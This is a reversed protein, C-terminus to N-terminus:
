ITPEKAPVIKKAENVLDTQIQKWDKALYDPNQKIQQDILTDFSTHLVIEWLQIAGISKQEIIESNSMLYLRDILQKLELIQALKEDSGFRLKQYQNLMSSKISDPLNNETAKAYEETIDTETRIAFNVPKKINPMIFADIGYRVKGCFDICFELLDWIENSFDLLASFLDERDIIKGLATDSGKANTMSIDVGLFSFSKSVNMNIEDRLFQLINTDMQVFGLPPVPTEGGEEIGTLRKIKHVGLTKKRLSGSGGCDPCIVRRAKDDDGYETVYGDNCSSNTCEDDFEWRIPYAHAIKAAQLTSNDFVIDNLPPVADSVHSQMLNDYIQVGGLYAAPIYNLDHTYYESFEFSYDVFKGKQEIKWITTKDYLYFVFGIKKRNNYYDVVSKEDSMILCYENNFDIVRDCNFIKPTPELLETDPIELNEIWLAIVGNPDELKENKVRSRFYATISDNLPFNNLFYDEATSDKYIGEDNGWTDISYNQPNFVRNFNNVGRKWDPRTVNEYISKRYSYMAEDENPAKSVFIKKPFECGKSHVKIEDWMEVAEHYEESFEPINKFEIGESTNKIAKKIIDIVPDLIKIIDQENM